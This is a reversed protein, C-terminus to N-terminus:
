KNRYKNIAEYAAVGLLGLIFAYTAYIFEVVNNESIFRAVTYTGFVLLAWLATFRKSSTPSDANLLDMFFDKIKGLFKKM